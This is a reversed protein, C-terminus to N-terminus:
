RQASESSATASHVASSLRPRWDNQPDKPLTTVAIEAGPSRSSQNPKRWATRLRPKETPPTSAPTASCIPM